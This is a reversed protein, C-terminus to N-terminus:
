GGKQRFPFFSQPGEKGYTTHDHLQKQTHPSAILQGDRRFPFFHGKDIEDLEAFSQFSAGNLSRQAGALASRASGFIIGIRREVMANSSSSNPASSSKITGQKGCYQVHAGNNHIMSVPRYCALQLKALARHIVRM